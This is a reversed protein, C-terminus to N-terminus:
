PRPGATVLQVTGSATGIALRGDPLAALATAPEGVTIVVPEGPGLDSPDWVQVTGDLGASALRGDATEALATVADGHGTFSVGEDDPFRPSWVHVVGDADGSAVRGDSLVALRLVGTRHGTFVAVPPEGTRDPRRVEVTGDTRALVVLDRGLPRADTASLGGDAVAPLAGGPPADDAPGPRALDWVLARGDSTRAAVTHDGTAAVADLDVGDGPLLLPPAAPDDIGWVVVDGGQAAALRGDDLVALARVTEGPRTPGSAPYALAVPQGVRDPGAVADVAEAGADAGCGTLALAFGAAVAVALGAALAGGAVPRASPRPLPAQHPRHLPM